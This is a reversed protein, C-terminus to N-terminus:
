STKRLNVPRLTREAILYAVLFREDNIERIVVLANTVGEVSMIRNAIEAPEIRYGRWKLQDDKRGKFIIKGNDTWVGLDGTRYVRNNISSSPSIFKEATEEPRNIYGHAVGKGAVCIEGAVGPPVEQLNEDLLYVTHNSIPSGVLLCDEPKEIKQYTVCVTTETPGYTNYVSIRDPVESIYSPQLVDGGSILLRLDAMESWAQTNNLEDIILPTTSIITAHNRRAQQVLADINRGGDEVVILEGGEVLVPFIEEVQFM